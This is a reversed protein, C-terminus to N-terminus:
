GPFLMGFFIKPHLLYFFRYVRDVSCIPVCWFIHQGALDIKSM